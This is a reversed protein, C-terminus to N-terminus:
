PTSIYETPDLPEGDIRLELLCPCGFKRRRQRLPQRHWWSNGRAKHCSSFSTLLRVRFNRAKRPVTIATHAATIDAKGRISGEAKLQADVALGQVGGFVDARWLFVLVFGCNIDVQPIAGHGKGVQHGM